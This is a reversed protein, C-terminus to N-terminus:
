VFARMIRLCRAPDETLGHRLGWALYDAARFLVWKRATERDLHVERVIVDFWYRIDSAVAMEDLRTWLLGAVTYACDGALLVPDVVLWPAREGALVNGYHLDGNVATPQALAPIARAAALVEDFLLSGGPEGITPWERALEPLRQSIIAATSPAHPPPRVATARLIRAIIPVASSLPEDSLARGADLRELLLANSARDLAILRVTGRGDWYELAAADAVIDDTPPLLRLAFPQEGRRVPVVLANSGHAARGDITVGFARCQRAILRPLEDLWATGERWWRPMARFSAPIEVYRDPDPGNMTEVVGHV